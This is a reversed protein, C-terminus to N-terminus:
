TGKEQSVKGPLGEQEAKRSATDCVYRDSQGGANQLAKTAPTARFSHAQSGQALLGVLVDDISTM